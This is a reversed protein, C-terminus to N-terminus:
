GSKAYKASKASAKNSRELDYMAHYKESKKTLKASKADLALAKRRLNDNTSTKRLARRVGWKMGPVGYHYLEYEM